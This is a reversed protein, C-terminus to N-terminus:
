PNRQPIKSSPIRIIAEPLCREIGSTYRKLATLYKKKTSTVKKNQKSDILESM